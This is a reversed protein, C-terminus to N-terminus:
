HPTAPRGSSRSRCLELHSRNWVSGPATSHLSVPVLPVNVWLAAIGVAVFSVSAIKTWIPHLHRAIAMEITRAAVQAPGVLAGLGVAVALTVGNAQLITLLHVSMPSSIVAAFTLAFALMVHLARSPKAVLPTELAGADASSSFELSKQRPLVFLYTPLRGRIPGGWLALLHRAM